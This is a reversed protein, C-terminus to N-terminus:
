GYSGIKRYESGIKNLHNVKNTDEKDKKLLTLLSDIKSQHAFSFNQFLNLIFLLCFLLQLKRM